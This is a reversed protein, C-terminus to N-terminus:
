NKATPGGPKVNPKKKKTVTPHCKQSKAAISTKKGAKPKPCSQSGSFPESKETDEKLKAQNSTTRKKEMEVIKKKAQSKISETAKTSQVPKPELKAKMINKVFDSIERSRVVVKGALTGAFKSVTEVTELLESKHNNM